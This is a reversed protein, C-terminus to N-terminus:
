SDDNNIKWNELTEGITFENYKASIDPLLHIELAPNTKRKM